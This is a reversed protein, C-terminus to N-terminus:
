SSAPTLEGHTANARRREQAYEAAYYSGIVFVLAISQAIVGEWTSYVGLWDSVWFPVYLDGLPNIPLWGVAQLVHVTKGVMMVLVLSIMIGTVVLMKKHPLKAQLFFTLAGIVAVGALGLLTGEIVVSTGGDLVLAQLFVVTEAGERFVSTFGLLVMGLAQGAAGGIVMRRRNHHMAIWRTWYVKHFFWNLVLLLVAIAFVSVVAEVKESNRNLSVLVTRALVFLIGSAILALIAGLALPKKHIKNAGIMSALLSALILV